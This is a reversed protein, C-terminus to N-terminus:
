KVQDVYVGLTMSGVVVDTKREVVPVSVQCVKKGNDVEVEDVFVGGRGGNYSNTWKAEDGQWYDGTKDTECVVAGMNDMVFIEMLYPKGAV